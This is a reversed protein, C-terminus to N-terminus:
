IVIKFKPLDIGDLSLHKVVHEELLVNSCRTVSFTNLVLVFCVYVWRRFHMPKTVAMEFDDGKRGFHILVSMANDAAPSFNM